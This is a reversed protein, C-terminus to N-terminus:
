KLNHFLPVQTVNVWEDYSINALAFDVELEADVVFVHGYAQQEFCCQFQVEDGHMWIMCGTACRDHQKIWNKVFSKIKNQVAEM